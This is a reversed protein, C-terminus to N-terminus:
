DSVRKSHLTCATELMGAGSVAAAAWESGGDSPLSSTTRAPIRGRRKSGKEIPVDVLDKKGILDREVPDQLDEKWHLKVAGTVHGEEYLDTNEDVEAVVIGEDDLHEAQWETPVLV